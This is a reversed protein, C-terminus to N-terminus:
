PLHARGFGALSDWWISAVSVLAGTHPADVMLGAGIYMGVHFAPSGFFVLDGPQLQTIPVPTTWAQQDAAVRPITIGQHAYSWMMLGSCDFTDPGTAGWQYPKGIQAEALKVAAAAQPLVGGLAPSPTFDLTNAAALRQYASQAAAAQAAAVLPALTGSDKNVLALLRRQQSAASEAAMQAQTAATQAATAASSAQQQETVISTEAAVLAREAQHLQQLQHLARALATEADAQGVGNEYTSVLADSGTPSDPGLDIYADVAVTRLMQGQHTVRGAAAGAAAKAGALQATLQQLQATTAAVQQEDSDYQAALVDLVESQATIQQELQDAQAIEAPSAMVVPAPPPGPVTATWAPLTTTTAPVTTPTPTAAQPVATTATAAPVTSTTTTAPVTTTTTPGPAAQQGVSQPAALAAAAVTTTTFGPAAQQLVSQPAAAAPASAALPEQLVSRPAAAAPATAALPLLLTVLAAAAAGAPGPRLGTRPVTFPPRRTMPYDDGRPEEFQLWRM